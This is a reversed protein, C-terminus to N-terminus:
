ASGEEVAKALRAEDVWVARGRHVTLLCAGFVEMGAFPTSRGRSLFREPDVAYAAGLDFLTFDRAMPEKQFGFRADAAPGMLAILRELPLIGPRVLGTYLAAFATELGVIGNLSGLLGGAKEEASHPAHDTAIMDITGDLLGEVLAERDARSRIPPTMKYRGDDALMSDDLLLYHPATECSINVGRQKAERVAAVSERCSLHCAHYRCGTQEALNIDRQLQRWESESPIGPYGHAAAYAGQHIVGGQLLRNDECHAAIIKGLRAAEQMAQRMLAEDQVGRGDDSFGAVFPAMAAMDALQEGRQGRTIAGFPVAEVAASRSILDRQAQLTAASDPVPNLNPMACVLTYGGRAAARTGSAITEKYSFGPERLHVHVDTFGPMLLLRSEGRRPHIGPIRLSLGEEALIVDRRVLGGDMWVRVDALTQEM